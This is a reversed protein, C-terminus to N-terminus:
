EFYNARNKALVKAKYEPTNSGQVNIADPLKKNLADTELNSLAWIIWQENNSNILSITKDIRDDFSRRLDKHLDTASVAVDGFLSTSINEVEIFSIRFSSGFKGFNFLIARLM